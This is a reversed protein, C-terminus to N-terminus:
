CSIVSSLFLLMLTINIVSSFAIFGRVTPTEGLGTVLAVIVLPLMILVCMLWVPTLVYLHGFILSFIILLFYVYYFQVYFFLSPLPLHKYFTILWPQLPLAAAKALMAFFFILFVVNTGWYGLEGIGVGGFANFFFFLEVLTLELGFSYNTLYV